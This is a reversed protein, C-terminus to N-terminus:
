KDEKNPQAELEDLYTIIAPVIDYIDPANGNFCPDCSKSHILKAIEYIRESPKM